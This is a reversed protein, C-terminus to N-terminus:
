HFVKWWMLVNEENEVTLIHRSMKEDWEGKITAVTMQEGAVPVAIKIEFSEQGRQPQLVMGSTVGPINITIAFSRLKDQPHRGSVPEAYDHTASPIHWVNPAQELQRMTSPPLVCPGDPDWPYSVMAGAEDVVQLRDVGEEQLRRYKM